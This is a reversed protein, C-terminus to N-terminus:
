YNVVCKMVKNGKLLHMPMSWERWGDFPQIFRLLLGFSENREDATIAKAHIPSCVWVDIPKPEQGGTFGHWYLGPPKTKGDISFWDDYVMFGPRKIEPEALNEPPVQNPSIVELKLDLLNKLDYTEITARM